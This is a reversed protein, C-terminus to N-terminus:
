CGVCILFVFLATCGDAFVDFFGTFPTVLVGGVIGFFVFADLFGEVGPASWATRSSM